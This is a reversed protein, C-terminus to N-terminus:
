LKIIRKIRFKPKSSRISKESRSSNENHYSKHKLHTMNVVSNLSVKRKKLNGATISEQGSITNNSWNVCSPTQSYGEVKAVSICCKWCPGTM